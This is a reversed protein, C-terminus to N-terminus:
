SGGGPQAFDADSDDGPERLADKMADIRSPAQTQEELRPLEVDIAPAEGTDAADDLAVARALEISMPLLKTLRRIVTKRAMMVWDSIWPGSKGAKSRARIAEVQTHSMVEFQYGGDKLHAVAYVFCVRGPDGDLFPRHSLKPTLGFEVEFTDREYVERAEISRLEGSQRALKVLGRYGPILTCQNGYPVLYAEGLLGGAELGLESAQFVARLLSDASCNLLAPTRSTCSLVIKTLREATVHKPLVARMAPAAKELMQKLTTQKGKDVVINSM